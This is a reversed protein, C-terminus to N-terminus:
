KVQMFVGGCTRFGLALPQVDIGVLLFVNYAVVNMRAVSYEVMYSERRIVRPNCPFNHGM